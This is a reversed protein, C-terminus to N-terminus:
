FVINILLCSRVNTFFDLYTRCLSLDHLIEAFFEEPKDTVKLINVLPEKDNEDEMDENTDELSTAAVGAILYIWAFYKVNNMETMDNSPPLIETYPSSLNGRVFEAGICLRHVDSQWSVTFSRKLFISFYDTLALPVSKYVARLFNVVVSVLHNLHSEDLSEKLFVNELISAFKLALVKSEEQPLCKTLLTITDQWATNVEYLTERSIIDNDIDSICSLRFLALLLTDYYSLLLNETYVIASIYAALSVCTDATFPYDTYNDMIIILKDM